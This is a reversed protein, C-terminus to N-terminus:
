QIRDSISQALTRATPEPQNLGLATVNILAASKLRYVVAWVNTSLMVTSPDSDDITYDYNKVGLGPCATLKTKLQDFTNQAAADDAYIAVAQTVNAIMRIKTDGAGKYVDASDTTSDFQTWHGDFAVQQDFVAQCPAPLKSDHHRPEHVEAPSPGPAPALNNEGAVRRVDDIGIILSHADVKQGTRSGAKNTDTGSHGCAALAIVCAAVTIKASVTMAGSGTPVSGGETLEGLDIIM